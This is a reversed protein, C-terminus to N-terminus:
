DLDCHFFSSIASAYFGKRLLYNYLRRKIATDAARLSERDYGKKRLADLILRDDDFDTESMVQEIISRPVGKQYLGQEIMRRSRGHNNVMNEVYTCAYRYDDIYSLEKLESVAIDVYRDPYGAMSLKSRIGAETRDMDGILYLIREKIRRILLESISELSAEDIEEGVKLGYRVIEGNYLMFAYEDDIFIRKRRKDLETIGTIIM